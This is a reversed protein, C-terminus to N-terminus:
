KKKQSRLREASEVEKELDRIKEKARSDGTERWVRQMLNLAEDYEEMAEYLLAANYGAEFLQEDRYISLFSNRAAVIKGDHALKDAEKMDKGKGKLLTLSKTETHPTFDEMVRNIFNDMKSSLVSYTSPVKRWDSFRESTGSCSYEEKSVVRNTSTEVVQYLITASAERWYTSERILNGEDDAKDNNEEAIKSSFKTLGGTIYVDAPIETRRNLAYQVSEPEVFKLNRASGLSRTLREDLRTLLDKEENQSTYIEGQRRNYEEFTYIPTDDYSSKGMEETTRFPLASVTSYNQVDLNAPREVDQKVTTSCGTLTLSAALIAAMLPMALGSTWTPCAAQKTLAAWSQCDAQKLALRGGATRNKKM